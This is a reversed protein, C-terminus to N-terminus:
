FSYYFYIDYELLLCRYITITILERYMVRRLLVIDILFKHYTITIKKIFIHGNIVLLELSKTKSHGNYIKPSAYCSLIDGYFYKYCM